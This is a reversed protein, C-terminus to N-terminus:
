SGKDCSYPGTYGQGQRFSWTNQAEMLNDVSDVPGGDHAVDLVADQVPNADILGAASQAIILQDVSDVTRDGNVDFMEMWDPCGDGDSDFSNWDGNPPAPCTSYTVTPDGVSACLSYLHKVCARIGDPSQTSDTCDTFTPLQSIDCAGASPDDAPNSAHPFALNPGTPRWGNCATSLTASENSTYSSDLSVFPYVVPGSTTSYDPVNWARPAAFWLSGGAVQRTIPSGGAGPPSPNNNLAAYITGSNYNYGDVVKRTPGTKYVTWYLHFNDDDISEYSGHNSFASVQSGSLARAAFYFAAKDGQDYMWGALPMLAASTGTINVCTLNQVMQNDLAWCIQYGSAGPVADWTFYLEPAGATCSPNSGCPQLTFHMPGAPPPVSPTATRTPTFTATPRPTPTWTATPRPTPTRTRTPIRTATPWPTPTPLPVDAKYFVTGGDASMVIVQAPWYCNEVIEGNQFPQARQVGYADCGQQRLYQEEGTPYGIYHIMWPSGQTYAQYFLGYVWYPYGYMREMIASMGCNSDPSLFNQATGGYSGDTWTHVWGVGYNGPDYTVGVTNYGGQADYEGGYLGEFGTSVTTTEYCPPGCSDGIGSNDSPYDVGKSLDGDAAYGGIPTLSMPTGSYPGSDREVHLHAGHCNSGSEGSIAIWDGQYITTRSGLENQSLHCYTIYKRRRFGKNDAPQWMGLVSGAGVACQGRESIGLEGSRLDPRLRHRLPKAGFRAGRFVSPDHDPANSGSAM